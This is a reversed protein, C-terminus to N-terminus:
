TNINFIIKKFYFFIIKIYKLIFYMKSFIWYWMEVHIFIFATHVHLFDLTSTERVFKVAVEIEGMKKVGNNTLLILPYRNRYVKGTELTSLRVRVEGTHFDPHTASKDDDIECIGSSDFVGIALVTCPDYVKLM